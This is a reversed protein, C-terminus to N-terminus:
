VVTFMAFLTIQSSIGISKMHTLGIHLNVFVYFFDCPM